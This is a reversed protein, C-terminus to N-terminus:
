SNFNKLFDLLDNEYYIKNNKYYVAKKEIEDLTYNNYIVKFLNKCKELDDINYHIEKALQDLYYLSNEIEKFEIEEIWSTNIMKKNVEVFKNNLIAKKFEIINFDDERDFVLDARNWFFKIKISIM